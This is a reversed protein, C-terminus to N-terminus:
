KIGHFAHNLVCMQNFPFIRVWARGIIKERKILGVDAFRSDSSHNRNDGMVFYEDDGLTIPSSALGPDAIVDM